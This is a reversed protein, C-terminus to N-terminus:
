PNNDGGRLQRIAEKLLSNGKIATIAPGSAPLHCGLPSWKARGCFGMSWADCQASFPALFYLYVFLYLNVLLERQDPAVTSSCFMMTLLQSHTSQPQATQVSCQLRHNESSGATGSDTVPPQSATTIWYPVPSVTAVQSRVFGFIWCPVLCWRGIEGKEELLKLHDSLVFAISWVQIIWVLPDFGSGQWLQM